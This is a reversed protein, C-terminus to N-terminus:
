SESSQDRWSALWRPLDDALTGALNDPLADPAFFRVEIIERMDARPEDRTLGAVIHVMNGAGHLTETVRDLVRADGLRCGTEELLERASATLPDERRGVGGGPPMWCHAVYSHRVLLVRGAPDIALVRCGEIFPARFRWWVKRARHLSRLLLRHLPAPLVHNAILRLM